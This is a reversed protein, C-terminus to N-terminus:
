GVIPLFQNDFAHRTGRQKHALYRYEDDRPPVSPTHHQGHHAAKHGLSTHHPHVHPDTTLKDPEASGQLGRNRLAAPELTLLATAMKDFQGDHLFVGLATALSFVAVAAQAFITKYSTTHHKHKMTYQYINNTRNKNMNMTAPHKKETLYIEHLYLFVRRKKM